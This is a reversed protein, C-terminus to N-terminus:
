SAKLRKSGAMMLGLEEVKAQPGPVIGMIEGEYIVAIRDSLSLIEDLETSVLLVAAGRDREAILRKHVYETAGVDLGRTPHMAILLEPQRFVERALVVKQQNGGSLNKVPLEESTTRIDFERVMKAAHKTIVDRNLFWGRSFPAKYYEQLILNEKISMTGVLGRVNRDEPIHAVSRELIRRPPLNTVDEGNLLVQGSTVRRLGTIAEVLESQGNGDVGAVGLIEGRCLCFSIGKLAKLGKNNLAELDKVELVPKGPCCTQKDVQFFVERGVMMRALQNRDTDCTAVTGIVKGARLVTVRRCIAMVENLKHTIFIVTIGEETLRQLVGFLDEVEQPTLVATPEDLILLRAGRYLAKVIEVRQQQGVSLQWVPAEPDVNLGYQRSLEKIKRSAEKLDLIGRPMPMGLIINEAVTLAPILMFHQHVMGIGLDIADKPSTIEVPHGEFYIEGSTAQYLGYLINMLTSKGAGNEGLLAHVEGAEVALNVGDNARFSGFEKVIDKMVLVPAM